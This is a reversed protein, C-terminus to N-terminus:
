REKGYREVLMEHVSAPVYKKIVKEWGKPGVLSKVVSSSVEAIERPPILFIPVIAADLDSNVHRITREYEYDTESRIGRLLYKVRNAKAFDVLFLNEYSEVTVNAYKSVSEEVMRYRDELSFTYTKQRNTGVAVILEEFLQMGQEIIWLHGKTIPDFSAAYISRRNM